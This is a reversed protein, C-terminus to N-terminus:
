VKRTFEETITVKRELPELFDELGMMVSTMEECYSDIHIEKKHHLICDNVIFVKGISVFTDKRMFKKIRRRVLMGEIVLGANEIFIDVMKITDSYNASVSTIVTTM